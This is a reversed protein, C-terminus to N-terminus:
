PLLRRAVTVPVEASCICYDQALNSSEKEEVLHTLISRIVTASM